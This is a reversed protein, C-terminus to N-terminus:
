RLQHREFLNGQAKRVMEPSGDFVADTIQSTTFIRRLESMLEEDDLTDCFDEFAADHKEGAVDDLPAQVSESIM